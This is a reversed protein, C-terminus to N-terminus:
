RSRNFQRPPTRTATHRANAALDASRGTPHRHQTPKPKTKKAKKPNAPTDANLLIEAVNLHDHTRM